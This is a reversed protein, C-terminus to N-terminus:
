EEALIEYWEIATARAWEIAEEKTDFAFNETKETDAVEAVFIGNPLRWVKAVAHTEVDCDWVQKCGSMDASQLEPYFQNDNTAEFPEDNFYTGKPTTIAIGWPNAAEHITISHKMITNNQNNVINCLYPMFSCNAVKM